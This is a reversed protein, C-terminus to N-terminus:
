DQKIASQKQQTNVNLQCVFDIIGNAFIEMVLHFLCVLLVYFKIKIFEIFCYGWFLTFLVWLILSVRRQSQVRLEIQTNDSTKM